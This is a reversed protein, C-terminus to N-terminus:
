EEITKLFAQLGKQIDEYTRDFDGTYWPDAIDEESGAFSLLTRLKEKKGGAIREMNRLNFRDMGILYDYEEVDKATMQVARHPVVPVGMEKLKKVTGRHPPNGIEERSTGASAILFEKERGAEKVMHTFLSEAMTSRCINGHCIFLVKIM